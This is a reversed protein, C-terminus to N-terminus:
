FVQKLLCTKKINLIINQYFYDLLIKMKDALELHSVKEGNFTLDGTIIFYDPKESIVKDFLKDILTSIYQVTRGDKTIQNGIEDYDRTSDLLTSSLYHTDSVIFLKTDDKSFKLYDKGNCGYLPMNILAIFLLKFIKKM